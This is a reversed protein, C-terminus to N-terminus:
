CNSSRKGKAHPELAMFLMSDRGGNKSFTRFSNPPDQLDADIVTVTDGQAFELGATVAVQHGFNRSLHIAKFRPDRQHFRDMIEASGDQSGDNVLIVECSDPLEDLTKRLRM